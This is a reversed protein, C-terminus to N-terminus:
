GPKVLMILHYAMKDMINRRNFKDIFFEINHKSIKIAELKSISEICSDVDCPKFVISYPINEKIFKSSYGELGALIPKGVSAYEFIKSPLVRKFAPYDNLHLFLIDATQYYNILMKREIPAFFQINEIKRSKIIQILESKRGGDGIIIFNHSNRLKFALDPIISHLGQGSGINGAYLITKKENNKKHSINMSNEFESDVGNTFCTWESTNIQQNEFYEIFGESVVNVGIASSVLKKEIQFFFYKIIRSFFPNKKSFLDSISESFIDRLDIFYPIKSRAACIGSLLGTMLRGTTGIIFNPKLRLCLKYAKLAYFVFSYVQSILTNKHEPISVRHITINKDIELNKAEVKFEKYRNPQTTIVHIESKKDLRKAIAKTLSSARFSGASLDPEFYFTFFILKM